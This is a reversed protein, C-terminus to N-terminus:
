FMRRIQSKISGPVVLGLSDALRKTRKILGRMRSSRGHLREFERLQEPAIVGSSPLRLDHDVGVFAGAALAGLVDRPENTAADVEVRLGRYQKKWHLDQGYFALLAPQRARLRRVLAFTAPRPAYRGDYKSNWAEIAQPLRAFGEIWAFLETKPHAIMSIAGAADLRAIVEQPDTTPMLMTAGFGVIHLRQECEYELGPIFRFRDDSLSACDALYLAVGSEDLWEAHDTVCAFSCGDALLAARLEPLSFEGDSYTSHLHLAGRHM